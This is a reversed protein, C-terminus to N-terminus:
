SGGAPLVLPQDLERLLMGLLQLVGREEGAIVVVGQELQMPESREAQIVLQGGTAAGLGEELAFGARQQAALEGLSAHVALIRGIIVEEDGVRKGARRRQEFGECGLQLPGKLADFLVVLPEHM